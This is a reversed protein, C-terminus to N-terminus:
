WRGPSRPEDINLPLPLGISPPWRACIRPDANRLCPVDRGAGCRRFLAGLLVAIRRVRDPWIDRVPIAARITSSLYIASTM